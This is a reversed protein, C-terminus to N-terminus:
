NKLYAQLEKKNKLFFHRALIQAGGFALSVIALEILKSTQIDSLDLSIFFYGLYLIYIGLLALRNGPATSSVGFSWANIALQAYSKNHTKKNIACHKYAASILFSFLFMAVFSCLLLMTIFYDKGFLLLFHM